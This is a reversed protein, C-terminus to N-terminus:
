NTNKKEIIATIAELPSERCSNLPGMLPLTNQFETLSQSVARQADNNFVSACLAKCIADEELLTYLLQM